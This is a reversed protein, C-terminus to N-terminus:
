YTDVRFNTLDVKKYEFVTPKQIYFLSKEFKLIPEM